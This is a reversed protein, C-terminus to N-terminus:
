GGARLSGEAAALAADYQPTLEYGFHGQPRPVAPDGPPGTLEPPDRRLDVDAPTGVPGGIPDTPRWLNAWGGPGVRDQLEVLDPHDFWSRFVRGYLRDLPSGYTILRVKAVVEPPLQWLLAAALVTGQSHASLVVGDSTATLHRVRVTLDPVVRETYCPPALPHAGRPWFTGLDWLIGVTRRLRPTRYARYGLLVLGGALASALWTGALTGFRLLDSWFGPGAVRDPADGLVVTLVTSALAALVSVATFWSVWGVAVDTLGAFARARAVQRVQEDEGAPQDYDLRVQPVQAGTMRAVRRWAAVALVVLAPVLVAALAFAAWSYAVPLHLTGRDQPADTPARPGDLWDAVRFALGASLVSAVLLGLAAFVPQALGDAVVRPRAVVLGLVLVGLVQLGFVTTVAVAYGPLTPAAHDVWDARAPVVAQLVTLGVLLVGARELSQPWRVGAEDRRVVSPLCVGVSAVAMVLWLAVVLVADLARLGPQHDRDWDWLPWAMGLGVVALGVALHLQRLRAVQRVGYWFTPDELPATGGAAVPRVSEYRRATRRSLVWLLVLVGVPVLSGVATRRGPTAMVGSGLFRLWSHRDRCAKRAACQWGLLDTGIGEAALVATATLSLALLRVLSEPLRRRPGMWFSANVLTFPLMLLWLARAASGSTLSGWSYAELTPDTGRYFGSQGDGAVLRAPGSGLVHEPSSGGVGHVRLETVM